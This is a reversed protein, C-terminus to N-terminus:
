NQHLVKEYATVGEQCANQQWKPSLNSGTLDLFIQKRLFLLGILAM